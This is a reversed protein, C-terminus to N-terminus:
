RRGEGTSYHPAVSSLAQQAVTCEVSAENHALLSVLCYHKSKQLVVEEELEALDEVIEKYSYIIKCKRSIESWDILPLFFFM